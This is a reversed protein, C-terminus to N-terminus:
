REVMFQPSNAVLYIAMQARAKADTGAATVAKVIASRTEVPMTGHTLLVDLRNVLANPDGALAMFPTLDLYTGIAGTVTADAKAPYILNGVASGGYVATYVLNARALATSTNHIGFEPALYGNNLANDAPFYNFVTPPYFINQSMDNTARRLWVGDSAGGLARYFHTMFLAPERLRGYNSESRMGGRAEPDLLIARIVAKLDGRVGFGNNNFASSVRSVYAPSPNSTVLRQILQKGIFPGVNPHMFVNSIADSLDKAPTQGAPLVTTDLLQKSGSDHNSAVVVMDGIYNVPNYTKASAGPKLPYTWGTFTRAFGKIVNEDYTPIPLGASDTQLTGDQNLKFLGISFLQLLERAYNENAQQTINQPRGNNVMDLYNGMAPSLTVKTLIDQYNGFANDLLMNQYPAFSYAMNLDTGSIVVIQSLAFAVRQRLQDAGTLANTFFRRQLQFLSYNDRNCISAASASNGDNTCETPSSTEYYPWDGYGTKATNFQAEIWAAMGLQKVQTIAAETPGFSAQELFRAVDADAMTSCPLATTRPLKAPIQYIVRFLGNSLMDVANRGYGAIVSACELSSVDMGSVLPFSTQTLAGSTYSPVNAGDFPIWGTPTALLLKSGALLAIYYAGNLGNDSTAPRINASLTLSSPSGSYDGKADFVDSRGAALSQCALAICLLKTAYPYLKM